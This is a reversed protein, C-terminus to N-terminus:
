RAVRQWPRGAGAKNNATAAASPTYRSQQTLRLKTGISLLRKAEMDRMKMFHEITKAAALAEAADGGGSGAIAAKVQTDLLDCMAQARVYEVLLPASDPGFWEAPKSDVVAIFLREEAEDLGAPPVIRALATVPVVLLSAGSERAM